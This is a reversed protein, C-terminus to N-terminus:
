TTVLIEYRERTLDCFQKIQDVLTKMEQKHKCGSQESSTTIMLQAHELEALYTTLYHEKLNTEVRSIKNLTDLYHNILIIIDSGCLRSIAVISGVLGVQQVYLKHKETKKM